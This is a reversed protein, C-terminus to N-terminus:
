LKVFLYVMCLAGFWIFMGLTSGVMFGKFADFSDREKTM